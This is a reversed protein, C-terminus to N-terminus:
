KKGFRARRTISFMAASVTALGGFVLALLSGSNMGAVGVPQAASMLGAEGLPLVGGVPTSAALDTVPALPSNAQHVGQGAAGVAPLAALDKVDGVVPLSPGNARHATNGTQQVGGLAPVAPLAPLMGSTHHKGPKAGWNNGGYGQGPNPRGPGGLCGAAADGLVAAATGCVNIPAGIPANVQNGSGAGFSGDTRGGTSSSRGQGADSGGRCGTFAEGFAAVSNGCVNIPATIPANAQNGGLVSSRGSTTGGSGSRSSGNASSGGRCNADSTGFLSLANGCANIPATIPADVQNGGGVSSTGSTRGSPASGGNNGASAGGRSGADSEGFAGVANGSIDIPLTIPLNVQNGGGASHDGDTDALATGGFTMVGLALLAAPTTRKAWTRM